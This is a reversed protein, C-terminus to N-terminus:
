PSRTNSAPSFQKRGVKLWRPGPSIFVGRASHKQYGPILLLLLPIYRSTSTLLDQFQKVSHADLSWAHSSEVSAESPEWFNEVLEWVKCRISESRYFDLIIHMRWIILFNTCVITWSTDTACDQLRSHDLTLSNHCRGADAVLYPFSSSVCFPCVGVWWM